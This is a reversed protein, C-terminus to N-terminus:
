ALPCLLQSVCNYLVTSKLHTQVYPNTRGMSQLSAGCERFCLLLVSHELVASASILEIQDVTM